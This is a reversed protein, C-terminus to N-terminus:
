FLGESMLPHRLQIQLPKFGKKRQSASSRDVAWGQIIVSKGKLAKWDQRAFYHRDAAAVKIVVPGDLELWIDRTLNVKTIKGRLRLFGTEDLRLEGVPRARWYPSRWVGLGNKRALVEQKVLCESQATNPPVVVHFALGSVLLHSALDQHEANYVHALIRGYRDKRERDYALHVLAHKPFFRRTAARAEEALPQGDKDRNALEPSNIGLVRVRRGDKLRLTDGDFVQAIHATEEIRVAPCNAHLQGVWGVLLCVFVGLTQM